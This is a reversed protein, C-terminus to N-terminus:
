NPEAFLKAKEQQFEEQTIVGEDLLKKTERLSNYKNSLM